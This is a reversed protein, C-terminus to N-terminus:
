NKYSPQSPISFTFYVARISLSSRRIYSKNNWHNRRPQMIKKERGWRDMHAILWGVFPVLWIVCLFMLLIPISLCFDL